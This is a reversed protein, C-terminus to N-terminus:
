NDVKNMKGDKLPSMFIDKACTKNRFHFSLTWHVFKAIKKTCNCKTPWKDLYYEFIRKQYIQPLGAYCGKWKIAAYVARFTKIDTQGDTQGWVITYQTSHNEWLGKMKWLGLTLFFYFFWQVNALFTLVAEIVTIKFNEKGPLNRCVLLFTM